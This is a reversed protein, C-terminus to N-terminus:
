VSTVTLINLIMTSHVVKDDTKYKTVFPILVSLLLLRVLTVAYYAISHYRNIFMAPNAAKDDTKYKMIFPILVSLLIVFGM